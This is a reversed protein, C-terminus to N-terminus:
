QDLLLAASNKHVVNVHYTEINADVTLKWNGAVEISRRELLHVPGVGPGNGIQDDLEEGVVGLAETLSPGSVALNIFVFAGWVECRISRLSLCATDPSAWDCAQPIGVLSGSLDYTWAHYPCVLRRGTNGSPTSVLPAGRHQCTNFFARVVMDDGRVLVIPEPFQP